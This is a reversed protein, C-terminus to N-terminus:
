SRNVLEAHVADPDEDTPLEPLQDQWDGDDTPTALAKRLEGEARAIGAPDRQYTNQKM